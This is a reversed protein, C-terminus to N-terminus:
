CRHIYLCVKHHLCLSSAAWVNRLADGEQSCTSVCIVRRSDASFLITDDENENTKKTRKHRCCAQEPCPRVTAATPTATRPRLTTTTTSLRTTTTWLPHRSEVPLVAQPPVHTNACNPTHTVAPSSNAGKREGTWDMSGANAVKWRYSCSRTGRSKHQWVLRSASSVIAWISM